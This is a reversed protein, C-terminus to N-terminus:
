FQLDFNENDIVFVYVIKNSLGADPSYEFEWYFTKMKKVSTDLISDALHLINLLGM